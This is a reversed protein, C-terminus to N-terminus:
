TPSKLSIAVGFPLDLGTTIEAIPAGGAPYEWFFVEPYDYSSVTGVVQTGQSGRGPTLHARAIALKSSLRVM